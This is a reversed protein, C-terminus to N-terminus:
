LKVDRYQMVLTIVGMLLVAPTFVFVEFWAEGFRNINIILTKSPNAYALAFLYALYLFSVFLLSTGLFKLKESASM